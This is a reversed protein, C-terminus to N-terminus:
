RYIFPNHGTRASQTWAQRTRAPRTESPGTREAGIRHPGALDASKRRSLERRSHGQRACRPLPVARLARAIKERGPRGTPSPPRSPLIDHGGQAGEPAPRRLNNDSRCTPWIAVFPWTHRRRQRLHELVMPNRGHRVAEARREPRGLLRVVRALDDLLSQRVHDLAPSLGHAPAPSPPLRDAGFALSAALSSRPFRHIAAFVQAIRGYLREDVPHTWVNPAVAAELVPERHELRM